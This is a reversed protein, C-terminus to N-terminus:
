IEIGPEAAARQPAGDGVRYCGYATAEGARQRATGARHCDDLSTPETDAAVTDCRQTQTGGHCHTLRLQYLGDAAILTPLLGRFQVSITTPILWALDSDRGGAGLFETEFKTKPSFSELRRAFDSAVYASVLQSRAPKFSAKLGEAGACDADSAMGTEVSFHECDSRDKAPRYEYGDLQWAPEAPACAAIGIALVFVTLVGLAIHFRRSM